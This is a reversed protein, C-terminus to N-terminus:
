VFKKIMDLRTMNLFYSPPIDLLTYAGKQRDKMNMLARASMIMVRATFEPNSTLKLSLQMIEKNKNKEGTKVTKIVHGEHYLKKIKESYIEENILVVRVKYGAFYDKVAMINQAIEDVTYGEEPVVLCVRFFKDNDTLKPCNGRKVCLLKDKYPMTYQIGYKVGEVQNLAQTHGQSVGPGWFTYTTGKPSIADGYLRALSFLGPDWGTAIISTHNAKLAIEDIQTFYEPIKSHNDYCDVTNFYKCLVPMSILIDSSSGLCVFGLDIEDFISSDIDDSTILLDDNSISYNVIIAGSASDIQTAPRRTFIYKPIFEDSKMLELELAKGVNGFGIIAAVKKDKKLAIEETFYLEYVEFYRGLVIM